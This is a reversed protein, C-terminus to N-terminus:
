AHQPRLFLKVDATMSRAFVDQWETMPHTPGLLDDVDFRDPDDLLRVADSIDGYDTAVCHVRKKVAGGVDFPVLIAPRSKLVFTGGPRTALLGHGLGRAAAETAIVVDFAGHHSSDEHSAV